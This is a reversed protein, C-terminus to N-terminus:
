LGVAEGGVAAGTRGHPGNNRGKGLGGALPLVGSLPSGQRIEPALWDTWVVRFTFIAM